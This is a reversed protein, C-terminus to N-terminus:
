VCQVPCCALPRLQRPIVSRDLRPQVSREILGNSVRLHGTPSGAWHNTQVGAIALAMSPTKILFGDESYVREAGMPRNDVRNNNYRYDNFDITIPGATASSAVGFAISALILRFKMKLGLHVSLKMCAFFM